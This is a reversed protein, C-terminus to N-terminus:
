RPNLTNKRSLGWNFSKRSGTAQFWTLKKPNSNNFRMRITWRARNRWQRRKIKQKQTSYTRSNSSIGLNIVKTSIIIELILSGAQFRSMKKNLSIRNYHKWIMKTGSLNAPNVKARDECDILNLALIWKQRIKPTAPRM